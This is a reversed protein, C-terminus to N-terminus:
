SCGTASGPWRRSWAPGTSSAAGRRWGKSAMWFGSSTATRRCGGSSGPASTASVKTTSTWRTRPPSCWGSASRARRSSCRSCRGSRRRSRWRRCTASCRTWACSRGCARRGSVFFMRERDALHAISLVAVRPKGAPTYLLRDVDLPEGTLWAAFGPSGLLSNCAMALEFREKASYFTELDLVGIRDVPPKQIQQILAALDLSTGARWATDFITALLIHERGRMPDSDIDLLALLSSVLTQVRDRMLEGDELMEPAPAAFSSLISVPLGATSGPTYIAFDAAERLRAIRAGDQDWQALGATWRAAERAALEDPALGQRAAEAPEVWPAFDAPKLDPFTLLLDALDGKPDIVLSPVGDIAAEELLAILLGTKGSGTMGVCVAHTVLDRSDYLLPAPATASRALDYPRGLYFVGLKEYSPLNEAM